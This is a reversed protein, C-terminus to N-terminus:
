TTDCIPSKPDFTTTNTHQLIGSSNYHSTLFSKLDFIIRPIFSPSVIKTQFIGFQINLATSRNALSCSVRVYLTQVLTFLIASLYRYKSRYYMYQFQFAPLYRTSSSFGCKRYLQNDILLILLVIRLATYALCSISFRPIVMVSCSYLVFLFSNRIVFSLATRSPYSCYRSQINILPLSVLM